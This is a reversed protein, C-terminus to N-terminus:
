EKTDRPARVEIGLLGKKVLMQVFALTAVEAERPTIKLHRGVKQILQQISTKGDCLKWVHYGVSDLEFTKTAGDPFRLLWRHVRTPRLPVTLKAGGGQEDTLEEVKAEVLPRPKASLQQARSITPKKSRWFM